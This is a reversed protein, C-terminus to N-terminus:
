RKGCAYKFVQNMVSNPAVPSWEEIESDSVIVNGSGMNESYIDIVLKRSQEKKCDFENQIKTSLYPKNGNMLFRPKNNDFMICLNVKDGLGRYTNPDAYATTEDNGGAKVWQAMASTSVVALLLMLIVNRM